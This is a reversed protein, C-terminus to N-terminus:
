SLAFERFIRLLVTQTPRGSSNATSAIYDYRHRADDADSRAFMHWSHGELLVSQLLALSCYYRFNGAPRQHYRTQHLLHHEQQQQQLQPPLPCANGVWCFVPPSFDRMLWPTPGHPPEAGGYSAAQQYGSQDWGRSSTGDVEVSSFRPSVVVIPLEHAACQAMLTQLAEVSGFAPGPPRYEENYDTPQVVLVMGREPQVEGNAIRSLLQRGPQKKNKKKKKKETTTTPPMVKMCDPLCTDQGLCHITVNEYPTRRRRGARTKDGGHRAQGEDSGDDFAAARKLSKLCRSAALAQKITNFYVAVPRGCSESSGTAPSKSSSPGGIDTTGEALPKKSLKEALILSTYRLAGADNKKRSGTATTSATPASWFLESAGDIEIGIRGADSPRRVPRRGLAHGLGELANAVVNPDCAQTGRLVGFIADAAADAVAVATSPFEGGDGGGRRFPPPVKRQIGWDSWRRDRWEALPSPTKRKRDNGDDNGNDNNNSGNNDITTSSEPRRRQRRPRSSSRRDDNMKDDDLDDQGSQRRPSTTGCVVLTSTSSSRSFCRATCRCPPVLIMSATTTTTTGAAAFLVLLHAVFRYSPPAKNTTTTTAAGRRRRRRGISSCRQQPM